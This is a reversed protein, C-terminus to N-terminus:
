VRRSPSRITASSWRRCTATPRSTPASGSVEGAPLAGNGTAIDNTDLCVFHIGLDDFAYYTKGDPFFADALCDNFGPNGSVPKCGNWPAGSHARDHNGRTVFYDRRYTGFADLTHKAKNVFVPEAESTLDGNLM